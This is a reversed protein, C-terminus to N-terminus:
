FHTQDWTNTLLGPWSDEYRIHAIQAGEGNLEEEKVILRRGLADFVDLMDLGKYRELQSLFFKRWWNVRKWLAVIGGRHHDEVIHAGRFM